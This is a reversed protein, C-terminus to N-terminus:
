KSVFAGTVFPPHNAAIAAAEFEAPTLYGLSSHIRQTMYEVELWRGIQVFADDYDQYDAYDVHEEKFTRLFREVLGNQTPQGTDSMSIRVGANHLLQTHEWAAYQVGQDSHFIAPRGHQLAMRLASLTLAQDVQRSLAWGRVARTYADLIVALYIFRWQLRLYTIDACWLQDPHTVTLQRILNPYRWHAHNSDTTQIRVRGVSRTVGLQKLLRRVVREGVTWGDRQLQAQLRRYGYFPWRMLIQEIADVLATEDPGQAQYYYSSRAMGLWQCLDNVPYEQRLQRIM